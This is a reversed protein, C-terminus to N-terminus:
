ELLSLNGTRNISSKLKLDVEDCFDLLNGPYCALPFIVVRRLILGWWGFFNYCVVRVLVGFEGKWLLLKLNM